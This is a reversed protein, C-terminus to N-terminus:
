YLVRVHIKHDAFAGCAGKVICLLTGQAPPRRPAVRKLLRVVVLHTEAAKFLPTNSRRVENIMTLSSDHM